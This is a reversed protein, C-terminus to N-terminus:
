SRLLWDLATQSVDPPVQHGGEFEHFQVELGKRKLAPVIRASTQVMPLIPDQRGHSVFIQPKGADPSDSPPVFGPSFAVARRFTDGNALALALAYSAGDSFGEVFIRQPDISVKSFVVRLARDIFAIDPGFDGRIADWTGGRSDPALLVVGRADALSRLMRVPGEGSGGAGHLALILPAPSKASYGTPVYLSGDRLGDLELDHNGSELAGSAAVPALHLRASGGAAAIMPLARLSTLFPATVGAALSLVADRRSLREDLKM